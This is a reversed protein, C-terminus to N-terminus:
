VRKYSTVMFSSVKMEFYKKVIVSLKPVEKNVQNDMGITTGIHLSTCTYTRTMLVDEEKYKGKSSRM